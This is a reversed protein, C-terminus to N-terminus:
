RYGWKNQRARYGSSIWNKQAPNKKKLAIASSAKEFEGFIELLAPFDEFGLGMSCEEITCVTGGARVLVWFLYSFADMAAGMMDEQGEPTDGAPETVDMASLAKQLKGLGGPYKSMLNLAYFNMGVQVIEGSALVLDRTVANM